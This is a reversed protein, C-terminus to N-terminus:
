RIVQFSSQGVVDAGNYISILYTGNQLQTIALQRESGRLVVRGSIDSIEYTEWELNSAAINLRDSAPNPFISVKVLESEVVSSEDILGTAHIIADQKYVLRDLSEGTLIYSMNSVAVSKEREQEIDYLVFSLEGDELAGDLESTQTNDGWITLAAKKGSVRARGCIIGDYLAAIEDGHAFDQSEIILVASSGTGEAAIEFHWTQEEEEYPALGAEILDNSYPYKFSEIDQSSILQYGKGPSMTTINNIGQSPYYINGDSDKVMILTSIDAFAQSIPMPNPPLYGVFYWKLADFEYDYNSVSAPVGNITLTQTSWLYVMYAEKMRWFKIDNIGLGPYYFRSEQDKTFSLFNRVPNLVRAISDNTPVVNSSILQWRNGTIPISLNRNTTLSLLNTVTNVTYYSNGNWVATGYYERGASADWVRIEIDERNLFGDKETTLTNDGWLAIALNAGTWVGYGGCRKAGNDDYFFGIADNVDITDGAVMPYISTEVIVTSSSGTQEEVDWTVPVDFGAGTVTFFTDSTDAIASNMVDYMRVKYKLTSQTPLTWSYTGLSADVTDLVIWTNGGNSTYAIGLSDINRSTWIIDQTSSNAWSEGGNPTIIVVGDGVISFVSNSTDALSPNSVSSVRVLANESPTEPVDWTYSNPSGPIDAVIIRWTSGNDTSYDLKVRDSNSIEWSIEQDTGILWKEGGNPTSLALGTIEFQESVSRVNSNDKQWIRILGQTTPENPVSWNYFGLSAPYSSSITQWSAGNDKSYEIAINGSEVAIWSITYNSGELVKQGATEFSTLKVGAMRVFSDTSDYIGPKDSDRIIFTVQEGPTNPVTWDIGSPSVARRSVLSYTDRRSGNLTIYDIDVFSASNADWSVLHRESPYFLEGGNPTLLTVNEDTITFRNNSSDLLAGTNSHYVRISANSTLISPVTWDYYGNSPDLNSSIVFENTGDFYKLDIGSTFQSSFSVRELRGQGFYEGGNPYLVTAAPVGIQVNVTNSQSTDAINMVKIAVNQSSINTFTAAVTNGSAISDAIVTRGSPTDMVVSVSDIGVSEWNVSLYLPNSEKIITQNNSPSIIRIGSVSSIADSMDMNLVDDSNRIRVRLSDTLINPVTWLYSGSAASVSRAIASWTNGNDTSYDIDLSQIFQTAWTINYVSGGKITQGGNPATLQIPFRNITFNGSTSVITPNITDTLRVQATNTPTNPVTWNIGLNSARVGPSITNWNVGGDTSYEVKVTAVNQYTWTIRQQEGANWSAGMLPATIALQPGVLTFVADSVDTKQVDASDVLRILGQASGALPFRVSSSEDAARVNSKLRTWSQGNNGSYDINLTQINTSSWSVNRFQGGNITEGGNPSTVSLRYTRISFPPSVANKTADNKDQVKIRVEDSTLGPIAWNREGLSGVSHGILNWNTGNNISYYVSVTDINSSTWLINKTEGTIWLEGGTPSQLTITGAPQGNGTTIVTGSAGVAFGNAADTFSISKLNASVPTNQVSWSTGSNTTKLVKGASSTAFGIQTGPIVYVSNLDDNVGSSVSSWTTGGNTTRLVTGTAGVVVGNNNDFFAISNLNRITNTNATFWTGGGNITRIIRGNNGCIFGNDGIMVIDNLQDSTNSALSQFSNGSNVSIALYGDAGAVIITDSSAHITRLQKTTQITITSWTDGGDSSKRLTGNDGVFYATSAGEAIIDNINNGTGSSIASWNAGYDTSKILAGSGGAALFDATGSYTASTNLVQSTGSTVQSWSNAKLTSPLVAAALICVAVWSYIRRIDM